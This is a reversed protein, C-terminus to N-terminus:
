NLPLIAKQIHKVKFGSQKYQHDSEWRELDKNISVELGWARHSAAVEEVLEQSNKLFRRMRKYREKAELLKEGEKM